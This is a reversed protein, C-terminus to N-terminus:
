RINDKENNKWRGASCSPWTDGGVPITGDQSNQCWILALSLLYFIKSKPMSIGVRQNSIHSFMEENYVYAVYGSYMCIIYTVKNHKLVYHLEWRITFLMIRCPVGERRREREGEREKERENERARERKKERERERERRGNYIYAVYCLNLKGIHLNVINM